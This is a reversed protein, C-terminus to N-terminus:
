NKAVRKVFSNSPLLRAIKSLFTVQSHLTFPLKSQGHLFILQNLKVLLEVVLVDFNFQFALGRHVTM